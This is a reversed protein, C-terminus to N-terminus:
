TDAKIHSLSSLSIDFPAPGGFAVLTVLATKGDVNIRSILVDFAEYVGRVVRAIEGAAFPRSYSQHQKSMDVM